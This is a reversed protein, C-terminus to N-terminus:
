ENMGDQNDAVALLGEKVLAAKFVRLLEADHMQDAATQDLVAQLCGSVRSPSGILQGIHHQHQELIRMWKAARARETIQSLQETSFRYPGTKTETEAEVLTGDDGGNVQVREGDMKWYWWHMDPKLMRNRQEVSFAKLLSDLARSDALRMVFGQGEPNEADLQQRLHNLLHTHTSAIFSLMPTCRTKYLLYDIVARRREPAQPLAVLRPSIDLLGVGSYVGEFLVHLKLTPFRQVLDNHLAPNFAMDILAYCNDTPLVALLSEATNDPYPDAWYPLTPQCAATVTTTM